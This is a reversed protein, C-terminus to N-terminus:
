VSPRTRPANAPGPPSADVSLFIPPLYGRSPTPVSTHAPGLGKHDQCPPDVPLYPTEPSWGYRAMFELTEAAAVHSPERGADYNRTVAFAPDTTAGAPVVALALGACLAGSISVKFASTKM